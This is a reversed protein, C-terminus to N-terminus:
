GPAGRRRALLAPIGLVPALVATDALWDRLDSDRHLFPIAQAVEIGAGFLSLWLALRLRSAAPYALQVLAALVAFALMHEFKDGFRDIPVRPPMPLLAMTAAFAFCLWFSARWLLGGAPPQLLPM